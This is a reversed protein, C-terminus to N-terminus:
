SGFFHKYNSFNTGFSNTVTFHLNNSSVIVSCTIGQKWNLKLGYIVVSAKFELCLVPSAISAEIKSPFVM